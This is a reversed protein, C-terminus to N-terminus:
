GDCPLVFVDGIQKVFTARKRRQAPLVFVCTARKM